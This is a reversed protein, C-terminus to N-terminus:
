ADIDNLKYNKPCYIKEQDGDDWVGWASDGRSDGKLVCFISEMVEM